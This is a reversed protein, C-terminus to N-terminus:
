GEGRERRVQRILRRAKLEAQIEQVVEYQMLGRSRIKGKTLMRLVVRPLFHVALVLGFVALILWEIM